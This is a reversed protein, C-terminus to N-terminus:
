FNTTGDLPDVVWRVRGGRVEGSEEGSEEGVVADGPRAATIRAVILEEADRDADSVMGTGSSKTDVGSAPGRFRSALLAGAAHAADVAVALLEDAAPRPADPTAADGPPSRM